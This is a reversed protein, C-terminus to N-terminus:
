IKEKGKFKKMEKLVDKTTLLSNNKCLLLLIYKELNTIFHERGLNLSILRTLEKDM